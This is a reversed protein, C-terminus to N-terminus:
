LPTFRWALVYDNSVCSLSEVICSADIATKQKQQNCTGKHFSSSTSPGWEIKALGKFDLGSTTTAITNTNFNILVEGAIRAGLWMCKAQGVMENYASNTLRVRNKSDTVIAPAEDAEIEAEVAEKSGRRLKFNNTIANVVPTLSSVTICSGVPRIPRPSIVNNSNVSSGAGSCPSEPARLQLTLEKEEEEEATMEVMSKLDIKAESKEFNRGGSSAPSSPLLPLTVPAATAAKIPTTPSHSIIKEAGAAIFGRGFWGNGVAYYHPPPPPFLVPSSGSTRKFTTTPSVSVGITTRGRKRTRTPRAQLKPWLNRLYPSQQIKESMMMGDVYNSNDGCGGGDGGGTDMPKPAIPRYRSMIEATKAASAYPNVMAPQMM